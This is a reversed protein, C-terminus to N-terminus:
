YKFLNTSERACLEVYLLEPVFRTNLSWASGNDTQAGPKVVRINESSPLVVWYFAFVANVM